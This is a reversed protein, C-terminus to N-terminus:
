GAILILNYFEYAEPLSDFITGLALNVVVETGRDAFRQIAAELAPMRDVVAAREDPAQPGRTRRKWCSPHHHKRISACQPTLVSDLRALRRAAGRWPRTRCGCRWRGLQVHHLIGGSFEVDSLAKEVAPQAGGEDSRRTDPSFPRVVSEPPGVGSAAATAGGGATVSAGLRAASDNATSTSGFDLAPAEAAPIAM